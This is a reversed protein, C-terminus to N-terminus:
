VAIRWGGAAGNSFDLDIDRGLITAEVGQVIAARAEEDSYHQWGKSQALQVDGPLVIGRSVLAEIVAGSGYVGPRYRGGLKKFLLTATEFYDIVAAPDMDGDCAMRIPTATPQGCAFALDYAMAADDHGRASTFYDPTTPYGSEWVTVIYLGAKSLDIAESKTLLQKFRSTGPKYLYREVWSFGLQRLQPGLGMLSSASDLGKGM